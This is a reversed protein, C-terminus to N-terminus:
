FGVLIVGAVECDFRFDDSMLYAYEHHRASAIPDTPDTSARGPHCMIMGGDQINAFFQQFYQRCQPAANFSYIGEFSSNHPIADPILWDDLLRKAGTWEILCAKPDSLRVPRHVSRIRVRFGALQANEYVRKLAARVVPFHHVHQHGDLYAPYFGMAQKFAELQAALEAEVAAPKLQGAYARLLLVGLGPFTDGYAAKFEPSLPTGQTLNLHLGFAAKGRCPLLWRAHTPWDPGNTLASTATLRGALILDIIGRSVAEAQGYDDAGLVIRKTM